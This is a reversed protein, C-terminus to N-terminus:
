NKQSSIQSLTKFLFHISFRLEIIIRNQLDSQQEPFLLSKIENKVSLDSM